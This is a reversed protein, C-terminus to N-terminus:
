TLFFTQELFKSQESSNMVSDIDGTIEFNAEDM